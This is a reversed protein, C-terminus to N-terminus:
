RGGKPKLPLRIEFANRSYAAGTGSGEAPGADVTLDGGHLRVLTRAIGLGVGGGEKGIKRAIEGSYHNDFIREREQPYIHISQMDLIISAVGQAQGFKVQITSGHSTYKVANHLVHYLAVSVAEYDLLANIPPCSEIDLKVNKEQFELFFVSANNLFVRHIGHSRLQLQQKATASWLRDVVSFETKMATANKLVKLYAYAANRTNESVAKGVEDIQRHIGGLLKEQPVLSYLEQLIHASLSTVNHLLRQAEKRSETELTNRIDSFTSLMASHLSLEKRFQRASALYDLSGSCLYTTGFETKLMGRRHRGPRGCSTTVESASTCHTICSRCAPDLMSYLLRDSADLLLVHTKSM